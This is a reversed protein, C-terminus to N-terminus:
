LQDIWEQLNRRLIDVDSLGENSAAIKEEVKKMDKESISSDFGKPLIVKSAIDKSAKLKVDDSDYLAKSARPNISSGSDGTPSTPVSPQAPPSALHLRSSLPKPTSHFTPARTFAGSKTLLLLLMVGSLMISTSM